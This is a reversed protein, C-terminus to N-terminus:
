EGGKPQERSMAADIAEDFHQAVSGFMPNSVPKPSHFGFHALGDSGRNAFVRAQLWRYRAADRADSGQAPAALIARAFARRWTPQKRTDLRADQVHLGYSEALTEAAEEHIRDIEDDTLAVAGEARMAAPAAGFPEYRISSEDFAPCTRSHSGALAGGGCTCERTEASDSPASIVGLARVENGFERQAEVDWDECHLWGSLPKDGDMVRRQWAVPATSTNSETTALLARAFIIVDERLTEGNPTSLWLQHIQEDTLGAVTPSPEAAPMFSQPWMAHLRQCIEELGYKKDPWNDAIHDALRDLAIRDDTPSPAALRERAEIDRDDQVWGLNPKNETTM